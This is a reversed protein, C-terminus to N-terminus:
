CVNEYGVVLSEVDLLVKVENEVKGMGVIYGNEREKQYPPPEIQDATIEVVENVRDVVIGIINEDVEVVIICTRDDYDRSELGFRLRVDM